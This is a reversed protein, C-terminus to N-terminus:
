KRNSDYIEEGMLKDRIKAVLRELLKYTETYDTLDGGYPAKIDGIEGVFERITYVNVADKYEEYLKQKQPGNMVLILSDESFDESVLQCSYFEEIELGNMEAVLLIKQNIPEPFLVVIGRSEIKIGPDRIIKKMMNEALPSLSTNDTGVFVIRNYRMM